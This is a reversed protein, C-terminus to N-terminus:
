SRRKEGPSTLPPHEEMMADKYLDKHGEIYKWEEMTFYVSVDQCRVPVEGTLLEIIKHTLELIKQEHILSPPETMPTRSWVGSEQMIPTRGSTTKVITYDEGSLLSIIELTFDLIRRSIENRDM